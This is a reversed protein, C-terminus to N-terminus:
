YNKFFFLIFISYIYAFVIEVIDLGGVYIALITIYYISILSEFVYGKRNGVTFQILIVRDM